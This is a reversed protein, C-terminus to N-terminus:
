EGLGGEMGMLEKLRPSEVQFSIDPHNEILGGLYKKAHIDSHPIAKTQIKDRDFYYTKEGLQYMDLGTLGITKYGKRIFYEIARLGTPPNSGHIEEFWPLINFHEYELYAPFRDRFLLVGRSEEPIINVVKKLGLARAQAETYSQCDWNRFWYDARDGIKDEFGPFVVHNCIAVEEFREIWERKCELVSPGKGIIVVSKNNM